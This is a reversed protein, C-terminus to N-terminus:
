IIPNCDEVEQHISYLLGNGQGETKSGEHNLVCYYYYTLYGSAATCILTEAFM